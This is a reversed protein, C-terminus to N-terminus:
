SEDACRGDIDTISAFFPCLELLHRAQGTVGSSSALLPRSLEEFPIPLVLKPAQETARREGARTSEKFSAGQIGVMM